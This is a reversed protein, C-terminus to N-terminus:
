LRKALLKEFVFPLCDKDELDKGALRRHMDFWERKNAAIYTELDHSELFNATRSDIQKKAVDRLHPYAQMLGNAANIYHSWSRRTVDIKEIGEAGTMEEYAPSDFFYHYAELYFKIMEHVSSGFFSNFAKDDIYADALYMFDKDIYNSNYMQSYGSIAEAASTNRHFGVCNVVIDADIRQDGVVVGQEFMGDVSGTVTRLRKLHHAIFWLDSVSITHGEHKIKGMWCEPQTAHSLDYLKKWLMMNRINSKNDHQFNENYPTAFNLYDIIKPCITGHRRCVVTVHRAGSELATRANEAAFAGMGVVVVRKDQWDVGASEDSIGNILIGKFAEQNAWDIKRPTGVRDNIALIVGTSAVKITGGDKTISTVYGGDRKTIEDVLAGAHLQGAVQEALCHIDRLVEATTSHDRNSRAVPERLRYAAESTNVQSSTNAYQTWIGGVTDRKEVVCISLGRNQLTNAAHLGTIGAGIILVDVREPLPAPNSYKLKESDFVLITEAFDDIARGLLVPDKPADSIVAVEPDNPFSAEGEVVFVGYPYCSSRIKRLDELLEAISASQSEHILYLCPLDTYRRLEPLLNEHVEVSVAEYDPLSANSFNIVRFRLRRFKGSQRDKPEKTEM